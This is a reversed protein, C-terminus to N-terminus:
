PNQGFILAMAESRTKASRRFLGRVVSTVMRSGPKQVGRMTMCLHEAEMVVMVGKPKLCSMLTEAIQTTLREQIQLRRSCIEILRVIKSLGTVKAAPVYAVHCTGSFPLLHHECMSYFPVAKVLVIEDHEHDKLVTIVSAPDVGVGCYLERSMRVIRKPTEKLGKRDPDEGIGELLLRVAKEIKKEDLNDRRIACSANTSRM